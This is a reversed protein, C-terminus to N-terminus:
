WVRFPVVEAGETFFPDVALEQKALVSEVENLLVRIVPIRSLHLLHSFCQVISSLPRQKAQLGKITQLLHLTPSCWGFGIGDQCFRNM